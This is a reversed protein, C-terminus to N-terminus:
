PFDCKKPLKWYFVTLHDSPIGGLLHFRTELVTDVMVNVGYDVTTNTLSHSIMNIKTSRWGNNTVIVMTLDAPSGDHFEWFAPKRFYQSGGIMMEIKMPNGHFWGDMWKQYRKKPQILSRLWRYPNWAYSTTEVATAANLDLAPFCFCFNTHFAAKLDIGLQCIAMPISLM